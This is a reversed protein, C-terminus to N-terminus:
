SLANALAARSRIGLKRYVSSLHVEVTKPTVYLAQAIDRNSKGESAFTAVRLESPTLSGVGSREASRPRAGAAQLETRVQAALADAGCSEAIELARRLLDRAESPRRSIRVTRGLAALAKALELRCLSNSLVDVAERLRPEDGGDLEASVRLARGIPGPAGWQRAFSLDDEILAKAEAVRGIAALSRALVTRWPLWAPNPCRELYRASDEIVRIVEIHREEALLIEAEALMWMLWGDAGPTPDGRRQLAQRAGEVDGQELLARALFASSYSLVGSRDQGWSIQTESAQRASSIAEDIEGYTLLAFGRWLFLGVTAVLSGSRYAVARYTEWLEMAEPREAMALVNIAAIAAMAPERTVIAGDHIAALVRPVCGDAPCCAFAEEMTIVADLMWRGEGTGRIGKRMTALQEALDSADAGFNIALLAGTELRQRLDDLDAPLEALAARVVAAAEEGEGAYCLQRCLAEAALALEAPDTLAAQAARLYGISAANMVDASVLGLELLVRARTEEDLPEEIARELYAVASDPAGRSVAIRSAEQLVAAVSPDGQRPLILWHAAVQEVPADLDELVRIARSHLIEREGATLDGYVADRVLPHVFGLRQESHLIEARSLDRTAAAVRFQDIETLASVARLDAGDGLVALARAIAVADPSLRALRRLVSRSIARSGLERVATVRDATPRVGEAALTKLLEHLLLPNGGTAAHVASTFALAPSDDLRARTLQAVGNPSLARPRLRIAQPDDVLAALLAADTGAEATRLGLALLIPQGELRHALYALFRLSPVDAWQLDDVVFALPADGAVNLTLWYLGHLVGFSADEPVGAVDTTRFIPLASAAAGSLADHDEAVLPEFLQRVVGFPFARELESGRATLVRCGSGEAEGRLAALLRSKGIGAPGEIVAVRAAGASAETITQRVVSLEDDREMLTLVTAPAPKV